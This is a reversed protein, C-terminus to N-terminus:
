SVRIIVQTENNQGQYINNDNHHVIMMRVSRIVLLNGVDNIYLNLLSQRVFKLWWCNNNNGIAVDIIKSIKNIIRVIILMGVSSINVDIIQWGGSPYIEVM